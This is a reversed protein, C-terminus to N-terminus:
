VIAIGGAFVRDINSEVGRVRLLNGFFNDFLFISVFDNDFVVLCHRGCDPTIIVQEHWNSQGVLWGCRLVRGPCLAQPKQTDVLHRQRRHRQQLVYGSGDVGDRSNPHPLAPGPPYPPSFPQLFPAPTLRVCGVNCFNPVEGCLDM